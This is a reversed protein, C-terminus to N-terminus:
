TIVGGPRAARGEGGGEGLPLPPLAPRSLSVVFVPNLAALRNLGATTTSRAVSIQAVESEWAHAGALTMLEGVHELSVLNAVVKGGPTVRALATAAIEPLHGGSGGIFVADPTPLEALVEPAHGAVLTVNGAAFARRNQALYELQEPDCEVAYVRGHRLLAGAEIAVSGCGAGVDWLVAREHLRLKALAITRVEAKTIQGRRHAFASEPLGIPWTRPSREHRVVLLNLPAFAQGILDSLRGRIHREHGGGLHEFVDALADEDGAELLAQAIAAPHNREDTLIAATQALLAAPMISELPRGHASLVAADQWSAGLRAFALTVSGVNPIIRVRDHGLRSALLPGIGYFDPDGSALVVVRRTECRLTEILDDIRSKLARSNLTIRAAPHDPFFALHREGGCLVQASDVLAQAEPTLSEAGLDTIGVVIIPALAPSEDAAVM